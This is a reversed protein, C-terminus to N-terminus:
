VDFMQVINSFTSGLTPGFIYLVFIVILAVFALILTYEVLGQGENRLSALLM